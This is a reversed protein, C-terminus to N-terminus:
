IQQMPQIRFRPIDKQIKQTIFNLVADELRGNGSFGLNIIPNDLKRELISTWAMGPRSACAGQAISTGYVVIPKENRIPNPTFITNQETGIELWEVENYLPLYLKYESGKKHHSKTKLGNFNYIITDSFRFVGRNWFWKGDDNKVYLDVGSVGTSPMHPMAHGGKVKYRVSINPSNSTFNISLGASQKSLNWLPKRVLNEAENPLRNYNFNAADKWARGEIVKFNSTSPNYWTKGKVEQANSHSSFVLFFVFLAIRINM